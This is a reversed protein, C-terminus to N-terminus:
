PRELIQKLVELNAAVASKVRSGTLPAILRLPGTAKLDMTNALTTATGDPELLYTIDGQFPGIAGRIALRNGPEFETVTFLEESPSPITRAQRYQSGVGVPGDSIKQTESIAYNWMPVNEFQALYAFVDTPQRDIRITNTFQM